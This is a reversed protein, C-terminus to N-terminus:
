FLLFVRFHKCLLTRTVCLCKPPSSCGGCPLKGLVVDYARKGVGQIALVFRELPAAM